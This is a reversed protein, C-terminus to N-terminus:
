NSCAILWSLAYDRLPEWTVIAQGNVTGRENADSSSVEFSTVELEDLNLALKKM